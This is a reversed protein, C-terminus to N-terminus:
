ANGWRPWNPQLTFQHYVSLLQPSVKPIAAWDVSGKVFEGTYEGSQAFWRPMMREVYAKYKFPARKIEFLTGGATVNRAIRAIRAEDM